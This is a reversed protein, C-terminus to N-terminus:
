VAGSLVAKADGAYAICCSGFRLMLIYYLNMPDESGVPRRHGACWLLFNTLSMWPVTSVENSWEHLDNILRCPM